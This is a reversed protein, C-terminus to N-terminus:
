LGVNGDLGHEKCPSGDTGGVHHLSGYYYVSVGEWVASFSGNCFRLSYLSPCIPNTSKGAMTCPSVVNWSLYVKAGSVLIVDESGLLLEHRVTSV